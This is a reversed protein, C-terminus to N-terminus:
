KYIIAMNGLAAWRSLFENINMRYRWQSDVVTVYQSNFGTIIWTHEFRAIITTNGTSATYERTEIAFPYNVIWTIVPHGALIEAKLEEWSFGKVAQAPVGFSQLLGAIPPPHVGYSQPPLQGMSGNLNGVFGVEPDDSYPLRGIFEAYNISHGFFAAWDAASRAECDLTYWQERGIVGSIQNNDASSASSNPTRTSTPQLTPTATPTPTPSPTPTDTPLPLFPTQSPLPQSYSQQSIIEPTIVLISLPSYPQQLLYFAMGSGLFCFTITALFAALILWLSPTSTEKLNKTTM